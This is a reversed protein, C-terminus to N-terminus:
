SESNNSDDIHFKHLLRHLVPSLFVSISTLFAVGSYISYISAFMKAAYTKMPDVPGMGTLIMSANLLSDIFPLNGYYHYGIIGIALSFALFAMAILFSWGLRRLYVHVPALKTNRQEFM